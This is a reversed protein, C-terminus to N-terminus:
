TRTFCNMAEMLSIVGLSVDKSLSICYSPNPNPNPNSTLFEIGSDPTKNLIHNCGHLQLIRDAPFVAFEEAFEDRHKAIVFYGNGHIKVLNDGTQRTIVAFLLVVKQVPATRQRLEDRELIQPM